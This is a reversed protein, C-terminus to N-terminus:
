SVVPAVKLDIVAATPANSDDVSNRLRFSVERVADRQIALRLGIANETVAESM